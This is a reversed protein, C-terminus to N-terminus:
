LEVEVEDIRYETWDDGHKITDYYDCKYKDLYEADSAWETVALDDSLDIGDEEMGERCEENERICEAIGSKVCAEAEERTKFIAPKTM